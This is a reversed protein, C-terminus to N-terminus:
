PSIDSSYILVTKHTFFDETPTIRVRLYSVDPTVSIVMGVLHGAPFLGGDAVFTDGVKIDANEPLYEAIMEGSGDGIGRLMAFLGNRKNRSAIWQNADSLLNVASTHADVRVIQGIIGKIGVVGMGAAVDDELGKSIYIRESQPNAVNRSIDAAIWKEEASESLDLIDRLRKNQTVFFDLSQLRVRERILKEQLVNREEVLKTRSSFYDVATNYTKGPLDAVIRFPTLAVSMIGRLDAFADFRLDAVIMGVSIFLAALFRVLHNSDFMRM